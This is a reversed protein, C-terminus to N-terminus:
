RRGEHTLGVFSHPPLPGVYKFDIRGAQGSALENMKADFAPIRKRKVLFSGRLVQNEVPEEDLERALTLPGLHELIARADRVTRAQLEAAVLEGLELLPAQGAGAQTAKRLRAVRPNQRVIEALIAEERYHATVRLEVRDRLERLLGVLEDHRPKLFEEVLAGEDEFVIGFRLPIVTGNEFATGLVDFHCLLDARRARVKGPPVPSTLAAVDDFRVPEVPKGGLGANRQPKASKASTVGYCYLATTSIEGAGTRPPSQVAM